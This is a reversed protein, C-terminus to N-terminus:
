SSKNPIELTSYNGSIEDKFANAIDLDKVLRKGDVTLPGPKSSAKSNFREIHKMIHVKGKLDGHFIRGEEKAIDRRRLKKCLKSTEKIEHNLMMSESSINKRKRCLKRLKRIAERTEDSKISIPKSGIVVKKKPVSLAWALELDAVLNDSLEDIDDTVKAVLSKGYLLERFKVFDANKYDDVYIVKREREKAKVGTVFTLLYHDSGARLKPCKEVQLNRIKEPDKALILDLTNSSKKKTITPVDVM